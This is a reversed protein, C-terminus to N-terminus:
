QRFVYGDWFDYDNDFLYSAYGEWDFYEMIQDPVNDFMGMEDASSRAFDEEDDYEGVYKERFEDFVSADVSTDANAVFADFAGQEDEDLCAYENILDFVVESLSGEDFWEDPFNQKDQFMLEPDAEDRHIYYCAELFDEYSDFSTIDLWSGDLNGENYKKYTGVYVSPNGSGYPKHEEINIEKM